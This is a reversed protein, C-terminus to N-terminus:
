RAHHPEVGQHLINHIATITRANQYVGFPRYKSAVLLPVLGAHWDNAVFVADDGHTGHAM